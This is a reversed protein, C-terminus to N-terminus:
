KEHYITNYILANFLFKNSYVRKKTINEFFFQPNSLKTFLTVHSRMACVTYNYNSIVHPM